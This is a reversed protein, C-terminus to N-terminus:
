GDVRVGYPMPAQMNLAMSVGTVNPAYMANLGGHGLPILAGLDILEQTIESYLAKATDPDSILAEQLKDYMDDTDTLKFPNSPANTGVWEGLDRAPHVLLSRSWSIASQGSRFRGGLEGNNIQDLEVTIGVAGLM